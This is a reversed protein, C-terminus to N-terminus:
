RVFRNLVNRMIQQAGANVRNPRNNLAELGSNSDLGWTWQMSGTAFVVAGSSHTYYTMNAYATTSGNSYPSRAIVVINSPSSSDVSDLEYGLLGGLHSGASLGSGTCVWSSCDSIVMDLDVTNYQYQVGILAGEPRGIVANRWRVTALSTNRYPDLAANTDKYSVVRRDADGTRSPELRAQWYGANAGIFGLHVGANRANEIANRMEVTWYEDHGVSLFGKVARLRQPNRATDINTAYLVDYGERELFRVTPLEWELFEGSGKFPRLSSNSANSFPKNLSVKAAADSVTGSPGVYLSYGGWANYAAWTTVSAQFMLDASRGDDRVVFVIYSSKGRSTTLKALYFGSTWDSSDSNAATVVLPDTWDCEVLRNSDPPCGAQTRSTRTVPGYVRRGGAGNYWGIRYISVQYTPDNGPSAVNVFLKISDGRNVSTLSAYGEIERGSAYEAGAIQWATSV